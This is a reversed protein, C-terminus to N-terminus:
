MCIRMEISVFGGKRNEMVLTGDYQRVLTDIVTLGFGSFNGALVSDPFGVGDDSVKLKMYNPRDATLTISIKPGETLSRRYKISNTLLENLITGFAIGTRPPLKISEIDLCFLPSCGPAITHAESIIKKVVSRSDVHKTSDNRYLDEYVQMVVAIRKQANTLSQRVEENEEMGLQLMLMSGVFALDNKVRHHVEKLLLEKEKLLGQTRADTGLRDTLDRTISAAAHGCDTAFGFTAVEVIRSAKDARIIDTVSLSAEQPIKGREVYHHMAATSTEPLLEIDWVHMGLTKSASLGTIEEQARNWEVITGEEDIIIIGDVANEIFLHSPSTNSAFRKRSTEGQGTTRSRYLEFAIDVSALLLSPESQRLVFGYRPSVSSIRQLTNGDSYKSLFIVPVHRASLMQRTTEIPDQGNSLETAMLVLYDRDRSTVIRLAERCSATRRIHYGAGILGSDQIPVDQKDDEVLLIDNTYDASDYLSSKCIMM